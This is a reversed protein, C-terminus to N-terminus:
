SKSTSALFALSTRHLNWDELLAYFGSGSVLTAMADSDYGPHTVLALINKDGNTRATGTRGSVM